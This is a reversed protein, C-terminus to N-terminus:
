ARGRRSCPPTAAPCDDRTHTRCAALAASVLTALLDIDSGTELRVTVWGTAPCLRLATSRRLTPGLRTLLPRTLHVDAENDGHFHVIETGGACLCHAAGCPAPGCSLASWCALRDRADMALNM